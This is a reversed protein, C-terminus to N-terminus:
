AEGHGIAWPRALARVCFETSQSGPYAMGLTAPPLAAAWPLFSLLPVPHSLVDSDQGKEREEQLVSQRPAEPAMTAPSQGGELLEYGAKDEKAVPGRPLCKGVGVRGAGVGAELNKKSGFPSHMALERQHIQCPILSACVSGTSVPLGAHLTCFDVRTEQSQLYGPGAVHSGTARSPQQSSLTPPLPCRSLFSPVEAEGATGWSHMLARPCFM